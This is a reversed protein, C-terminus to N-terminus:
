ATVYLNSLRSMADCMETLRQRKRALVAANRARQAAADRPDIPGPTSDALAALAARKVTERRVADIVSRTADVTWVARARPYEARVVAPRAGFVQIRMGWETSIARNEYYYEVNVPFQIPM